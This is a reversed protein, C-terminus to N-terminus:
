SREQGPSSRATTVLAVAGVIIAAAIVTRVSLEEGALTWGLFVAAVPNVYAHTAVRAPPAVKLLWMYASYGILSGILILYVLALLSKVSVAAIDLQMPERIIVGTIALM